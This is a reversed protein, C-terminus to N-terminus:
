LSELKQLRLIKAEMETIVRAWKEPAKSYHDKAKRLRCKCNNLEGKMTNM